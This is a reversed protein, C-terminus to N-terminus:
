IYYSGGCDKPVKVRIVVHLCKGIDRDIDGHRIATIGNYPNTWEPHNKVIQVSGRGVAETLAMDGLMPSGVYGRVEGRGSSIGVIGRLPGDGTNVFAFRYTLYSETL